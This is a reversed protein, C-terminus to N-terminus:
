EDDEAESSIAEDEDEADHLRLCDIFDRKLRQKSQKVSELIGEHTSLHDQMLYEVLIEKRTCRAISENSPM